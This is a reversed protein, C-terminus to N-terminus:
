SAAVRVSGCSYKDIRLWIDDVDEFACIEGCEVAGTSAATADDVANDNEICQIDGVNAITLDGTNHGFRFDGITYLRIKTDGDSSDQTTISVGEVAIGLFVGGSSDAGVIAYGSSDAMILAGKYFEDVEKALPFELIRGAGKSERDANASLASVAM